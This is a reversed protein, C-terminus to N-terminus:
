AAQLEPISKQQFYNEKEQRTWIHGDTKDVSVFFAGPIYGDNIMAQSGSLYTWFLETEYHLEVQSFDNYGSKEQLEKIKKKAIELAQNENLM